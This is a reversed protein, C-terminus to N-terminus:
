SLQRFIFKIDDEVEELIDITDTNRVSMIRVDEVSWNSELESVKEKLSALAMRITRNRDKIVQLLLDEDTREVKVTRNEKRWDVITTVKTAQKSYNRYEFLESVVMELLGMSTRKTAEESYETQASQENDYRKTRLKHVENNRPNILEFKIMYEKM